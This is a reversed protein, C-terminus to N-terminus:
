PDYRRLWFPINRREAMIERLMSWDAVQGLVPDGASQPEERARRVAFALVRDSILGDEAFYRFALDYNKAAQLPTIKLYREIIQITESRNQRIFRAGRLMARLFKKARERNKALQARTVAVGLMPYEIIEGIHLLRKLGHEEAKVAGTIDFTAAHIEGAKLAALRVASDGIEIFGVNTAPDLGL